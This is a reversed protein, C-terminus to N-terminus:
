ARPEPGAASTYTVDAAFESPLWPYTLPLTSSLAYRLPLPRPSPSTSSGSRHSSSASEARRDYSNRRARRGGRHHARNHTGQVIAARDVVRFSRNANKFTEPARM